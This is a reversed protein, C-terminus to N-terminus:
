SMQTNRHWHMVMCNAKLYILIIVLDIMMNFSMFIFMLFIVYSIFYDSLKKSDDFEEVKSFLPSLEIDNTIHSTM